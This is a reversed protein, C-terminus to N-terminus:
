VARYSLVFPQLAKMTDYVNGSNVSAQDICTQGIQTLSFSDGTQQVLDHQVLFGLALDMESELPQLHNIADASHMIELRTVPNNDWFSIAFFIWAITRADKSDM